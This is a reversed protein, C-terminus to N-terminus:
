TAAANRAQASTDVAVPVLKPVMRSAPGSSKGAPPGAPASGATSIPAIRPPAVNPSEMEGTESVVIADLPDCSASM